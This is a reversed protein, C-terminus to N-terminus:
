LWKEYVAMYVEKGKTTVVYVEKKEDNIERKILKEKDRLYKLHECLTSKAIRGIGYFEMVEQKMDVFEEHLKGYTVHTHGYIYHLISWDIKNSIPMKVVRSHDTAFLLNPKSPLLLPTPPWSWCLPELYYNFISWNQNQLTKKPRYVQGLTITDKKGREGAEVIIAPSYRTEMITVFDDYALAYMETHARSRSIFKRAKVVGQEISSTAFRTMQRKGKSERVVFSILPGGSDQVSDLASKLAFLLLDNLKINERDKEKETRKVKVLDELQQKHLLETKQRSM